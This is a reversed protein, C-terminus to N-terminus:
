PYYGRITRAELKGGQVTVAVERFGQKGGQDSNYALLYQSRLENEIQEYATSLDAANEIYLTRGGTEKALADLKSRVGLDTKKIRLGIAYISVGSRRAYELADKFPLSSSTDEGDSLLVLARRGRVGRFYYLSTVVADHLSTAGAAVLGELQEAVAGVDSTREMLLKPRDSFSLAFARDRPGVMAELFDVAAAQAEGLSQIMSGSTDIVVGIQLPLNQVLEFKDIKQPRGDEAVKFDGATLNTVLHGSNDMVTTYLEILDVEVTDMGEPANLFRVDEARSGDELEAVATLFDLQGEGEFQITTEWPPNLLEKVEVDNILLVVRAVKKEEPVVVELKVAVEGRSRTGRAPEIIKMRLEGHPQNIVVEDSAVLEGQADYGEGRVTQEKPFSSLRLEATYPAGRRSMQEVGDLLFKVKEIRSGTVLAEARWLGFVVDSAPPVLTLSDFGPIQQQSLEQAVAVLIDGTSPEAPTESPMAPIVIARSFFLANGSAEEVLKLRVLFRQGPRYPRDSILAVKGQASEPPLPLQFRIRFKEFTENPQELLGDLAFRLERLEGDVIPTLQGVDPLDIEFRTVMRQGKREPYFVLLEGGGALLEVAPAPEELVKRAWAALDKPPDLYPLIEENKVRDKRFGFIGDIGTSEAVRETLKCLQHDVTKRLRVRNGLEQVQDLYYAMEENFLVRKGDVPLWLRWPDDRDPQYLVAPRAFGPYTWIELPRYTELCDIKERTAPLGHVFILRARADQYSLYDAQVKLRRKDIAQVLENEPTEPIPDALLEPLEIARQDSPMDLLRARKEEDFLYGPGDQFFARQEESWRLVADFRTLDTNFAAAPAAAAAMALLLPFLRPHPLQRKMRDEAPQLDRQADL